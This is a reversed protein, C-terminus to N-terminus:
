WDGLRLPREPAGKRAGENPQELALLLGKAQGAVRPLKPMKAAPARKPAAPKATAGIGGLLSRAREAMELLPREEVIPTRERAAIELPAPEEVAADVADLVALTQIASPTMGVLLRTGEVEVVLLESRVGVSTRGLVDIRSAPLAAQGKRKKKLWLGAAAAVGVGAFLKYVFPTGESPSALTLPKSPRTALPTAAPAEPAASPPAPPRRPRPGPEASAAPSAAGVAAPAAAPRRPPRAPAAAPAEGAAAASPVAVLTLAIVAARLTKM